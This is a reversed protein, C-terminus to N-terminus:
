IYLKDVEARGQQTGGNRGTVLKSWTNSTEQTPKDDKLTYTIWENGDHEYTKTDIVVGVVISYGERDKHQYAVTLTDGLKTKIYSTFCSYTHAKGFVDFKQNINFIQSADRKALVVIM